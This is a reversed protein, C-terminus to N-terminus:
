HEEMKSTSLLVMITSSCNFGDPMQLGFKFTLLLVVTRFTLPNLTKDLQNSPRPAQILSSSRTRTPETMLVSSSTEEELSQSLEKCQCDPDSSSHEESTSRTHDMCDLLRPTRMHILMFSDGNRICQTHRRVSFSM